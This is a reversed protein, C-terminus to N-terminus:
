WNREGVGEGSRLIVEETGIWDWLGTRRNGKLGEIGTKGDQGSIRDM